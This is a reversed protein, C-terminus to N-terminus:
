SSGRSTIRGDHLASAVLVRSLGFTVLRDVDGRSNVGGGGILEVSPWRQKIQQCLQETGTGKGVGVRSLDLVIINRIGLQLVDAAIEIGSKGQWQACRAIPHGDSLDLSFVLRTADVVAVIQALQESDVLSELGVIIRQVSQGAFQRTAIAQVSACDGAGADIWVKLGASAIAEYVSWAPAAGAIADLDAIYVDRFGFLEHFAQAVTGPSPDAAFTSQIPQYKEREGAVGRVVVGQKLDMVPLIPNM